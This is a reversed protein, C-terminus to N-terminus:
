VKKETLEKYRDLFSKEAEKPTLTIENGNPGKYKKFEDLLMQKDAKKVEAHMPFELDFYKYIFEMLADEKELYIPIRNKIPTPIDVMYAETADHLLASLAHKEPM